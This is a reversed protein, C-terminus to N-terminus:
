KPEWHFTEDEVKLRLQNSAPGPQAFSKPAAAKLRAKIGAYKSDGALNYWENFDRKVDYLEETGDRYHIYRWYQNIIAYEEGSTHM